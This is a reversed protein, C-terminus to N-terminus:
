VSAHPYKKKLKAKISDIEAREQRSVDSLKDRYIEEIKDTSM